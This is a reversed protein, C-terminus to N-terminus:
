RSSRESNLSELRVALFRFNEPFFKNDECTENYHHSTLERLNDRTGLVPYYRSDDEYEDWDSSGLVVIPFHCQITPFTAGFALLHKLTGPGLQLKELIELAEKLMVRIGIYVLILEILGCRPSTYGDPVYKFHPYHADVFDSDMFTYKGMEKMEKLSKNEDLSAIFIQQTIGMISIAVNTAREKNNRLSKLHEQTVGNKGLVELTACVESFSMQVLSGMKKKM